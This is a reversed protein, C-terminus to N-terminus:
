RNTKNKYLSKNYSGKFWDIDALANLFKELIMIFKMQLKGSMDFDYSDICKLLM